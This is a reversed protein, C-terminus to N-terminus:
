SEQLPQFLGEIAFRVTDKMFQDLSKRLEEEMKRIQYLTGRVIEEVQKEKEKLLELNGNSLEYYEQKAMPRGFRLPITNIGAPTRDIKYNLESAIADAKKWLEEVKGRFKELIMGKRREYGEGSFTSRIEREIEIVLREMKRQFELGKGAPLSIVYPKDPNEFNYVYCWDNPVARSKAM